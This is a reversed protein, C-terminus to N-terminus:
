RTTSSTTIGYLRVEKQPQVVPHSAMYNKCLYRYHYWQIHHWTTQCKDRTTGNSTMNHLRVYKDTNTGNSTIGYLRVYIHHSAMYDSTHTIHHWVTQCTRTLTTFCWILAKHEEVNLSARLDVWVGTSNTSPSKRRLYLPQPIFNVM